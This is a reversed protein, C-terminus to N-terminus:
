ESRTFHNRPLGYKIKPYALEPLIYQEYFFKLRRKINEWWQSDFPVREIYIDPTRSGVVVFDAWKRESLYMGQQVQYFYEQNKNRKGNFYSACLHNVIFSKNIHRGFELSSCFFMWDALVHFKVCIIRQTSDRSLPNRSLLLTVGKRRQFFSFQLLHLCVYSIM